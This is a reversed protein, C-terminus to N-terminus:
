NANFSLIKGYGRGELECLCERLVQDEQVEDILGEVRGLRIEGAATLFSRLDGKRVRRVTDGYLKKLYGSM